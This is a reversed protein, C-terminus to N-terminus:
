GRSSISCTRIACASPDSTATVRELQHDEDHPRDAQRQDDGAATTLEAPQGFLGGGKEALYVVGLGGSLPQYPGQAAQAGVSM